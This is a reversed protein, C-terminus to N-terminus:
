SGNPRQETVILGVTSIISAFLSVVRLFFLIDDDEGLSIGLGTVSLITTISFIIVTGALVWKFM